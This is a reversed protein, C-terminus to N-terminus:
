GLGQHLSPAEESLGTSARAGRAAIPARALSTARRTTTPAQHLYSCTLLSPDPDPDPTPDPDPDPNRYLNSNLTPTLTLTLTLEPEPEPEPEPRTRTRTLALALALTEVEACLQRVFHEVEEPRNFRVGWSAQAGVSRRVPAQWPRRDSGRAFARLTESM